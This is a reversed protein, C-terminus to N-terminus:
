PRAAALEAGTLGGRARIAASVAALGQEDAIDLASLGIKDVLNLAAGAEVLLLATTARKFICAYNLASGGYKDVLDLKARSRPRRPSPPSSFTTCQNKM